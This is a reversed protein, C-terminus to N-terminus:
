LRWRTAGFPEATALGYMTTPTVEYLEWPPPGASPASYEHWFAGDTVTPHWGGASAGFADALRQLKADDKVKVAVGESVIDLGPAAITIVCHPDSALNKAKQTEANASFVFAGDHWLIGVPMAHPKGDPRVTALWYRASAELPNISAISDLAKRAREFEIPAFGYLDGLNKVSEPTMVTM